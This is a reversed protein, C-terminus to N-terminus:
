KIIGTYYKVIYSTADVCDMHGQETYDNKMQIKGTREYVKEDYVANRFDEITHTLHKYIRLKGQYLWSQMKYIREEETDKAVRKPTHQGLNNQRLSQRLNRFFEESNNDFLILEPHKGNFLEISEQIFVVYDDIRQQTTKKQIDNTNNIHFYERLIYLENQNKETNFRIGGLLFVTASRDDASDM